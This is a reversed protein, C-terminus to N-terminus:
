SPNAATLIENLLIKSYHNSTNVFDILFESSNIKFYVEQESYKINHQKLKQIGKLSHIKTTNVKNLQNENHVIANRISKFDELEKWSQNEASATEINLVLNMYKRVTDIDSNGKLDKIKLTKDEFQECKKGLKTFHIEFLSFLSIFISNYFLYDFDNEYVKQSLMVSLNNDVYKDWDGDESFSKKSIELRESLTNLKEERFIIVDKCILLLSESNSKFRLYNSVIKSNFESINKM